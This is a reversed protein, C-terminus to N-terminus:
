ARFPHSKKRTENIKIYIPDKNIVDVLLEWDDPHSIKKVIGIHSVIGTFM